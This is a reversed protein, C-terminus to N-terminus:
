QQQQQQKDGQKGHTSTANWFLFSFLILKNTKEKKREEKGGGGEGRKVRTLSHKIGKFFLLKGHFHACIQIPFTLNANKKVNM